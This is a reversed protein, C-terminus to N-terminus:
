DAPPEPVKPLKKRLTDAVPSAIDRKKIADERQDWTPARHHELVYAHYFEADVRDLKPWDHRVRSSGHAELAATSTTQTKTATASSASEETVAPPEPPIARPPWAPAPSQPAPAHDVADLDVPEHHLETLERLKEFSSAPRARLAEFAQRLPEPPLSKRLRSVLDFRSQKKSM